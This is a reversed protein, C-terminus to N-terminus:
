RAMVILKRSSGKGKKDLKLFCGLCSLVQSIIQIEASKAIKKQRTMAVERWAMVILQRSSGKEKKDLKM